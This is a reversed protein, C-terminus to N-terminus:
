KEMRTFEFSRTAIDYYGFISFCFALLFSSIWRQCQVSISIAERRYHPPPCTTLHLPTPNQTEEPKPQGSLPLATAMHKNNHLFFHNHTDGCSFPLTECVSTCVCICFGLPSFSRRRRFIIESTAHCFVRPRM